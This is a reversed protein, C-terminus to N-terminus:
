DFFISIKEAFTKDVLDKDRKSLETYEIDKYYIIFIPKLTYDDFQFLHFKFDPGFYDGAKQEYIKYYINLFKKYEILTLHMENLENRLQNFEEYQSKFNDKMTSIKDLNSLSLEYKDINEKLKKYQDSNLEPYTKLQKKLEGINNILEDRLAELKLVEVSKKFYFNCDQKKFELDNNLKSKIIIIENNYYDHNTQITKQKLLLKELEKKNEEINRYLRKYILSNESWVKVTSGCYKCCYEGQKLESEMQVLDQFEIENQKIKENIEEFEINIDKLKSKLVFLKDKNIEINKDIEIRKQIIEKEDKNRQIKIKEDISVIKKQLMVINNEIKNINKFLTNYTRRDNQLMNLYDEKSWSTDYLYVENITKTIRLSGDCSNYEDKNKILEEDSVEIFKEIELSELDINNDYEEIKKKLENYKEKKLSFKPYLLNYEEVVNVNLLKELTVDYLIVDSNKPIPIFKLLKERNM